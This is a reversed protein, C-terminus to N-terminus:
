EFLPGPRRWLPSLWLFHLFPTPDNLFRRLLWQTLITWISMFAIQYLTSELIKLDHDGPTPAPLPWLLSFWIWKHKYQFFFDGSGARWNWDFKCTICIIRPYLSNWITCIFPWNRKLPSIIVFLCFNPSTTFIKGQSGSLWFLEYKWWLKRVNHLNLSTCIITGSPWPPPCLSVIKANTYHLHDNLILSRALKLWIQYLCKKCSPFELKHMRKLTPYDCFHLFLTPDNLYKRKM